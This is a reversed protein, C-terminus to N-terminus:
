IKLDVLTNLPTACVQRKEKDLIPKYCCKKLDTKPLTESVRISMYKRVRSQPLPMSITTEM